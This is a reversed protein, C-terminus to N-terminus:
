SCEDITYRNVAGNYPRAHWARLTEALSHIQQVRAAIRKEKEERAQDERALRVAPTEFWQMLSM